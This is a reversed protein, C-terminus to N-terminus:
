VKRCLGGYLNSVFLHYLGKIYITEYML